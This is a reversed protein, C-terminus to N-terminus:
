QLSGSVTIPESHNHPESPMTAYAQSFSKNPSYRPVLIAYAHLWGGMCFVCPKQYFWFPFTFCRSSGVKNDLYIPTLRVPSLGGFGFEIRSVLRHPELRSSM